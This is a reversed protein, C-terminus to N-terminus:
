RGVEVLTCNGNEKPILKVTTSFMKKKADLSKRKLILVEKEAKRPLM